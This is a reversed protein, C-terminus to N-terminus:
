ANPEDKPASPQSDDPTPNEKASQEAPSDSPRTETTEPTTEGQTEEEDGELRGFAMRVVRAGAHEVIGMDHTAVIVTTGRENLHLLLEIIEETHGPDLNGTPEDALLVPPDNILSRAIAVRQQEGGSLETPYADARHLINVRDLIMPVLKRVDRRSRGVARMAYAVNEWVKKGQLLGFDQPIIGLQRRLLHVENQPLTTLDKGGIWVKGKTVEVQKSLVKILTSKGCGTQGCLFVFEGKEIGLSVGRLGSVFENYAVEVRDFTIYSRSEDM